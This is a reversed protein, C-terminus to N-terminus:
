RPDELKVGARCLACEAPEWLEFDQRELTEVAIGREAFHDLASTGLVALSGVVTPTAGARVLSGVSARVSSGASVVDDVVAVSEGRVSDQLAMPLRYSAGFLSDTASRGSSSGPVPETYAFRVGLEVALLQALFAGGLLPGCVIATRYSALREALETVLPAVVSPNEFLGDLTFWRDTHYGSELVFHGNRSPVKKLM